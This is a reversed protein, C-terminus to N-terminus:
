NGDRKEARDNWLREAEAWTDATPGHAGALAARADRIRWHSTLISLLEPSIDDRGKILDILGVLGAMTELSIPAITGSEHEANHIKTNIAYAVAEPADFQVGVAECVHMFGEVVRGHMAKWEALAANARDLKSQMTEANM